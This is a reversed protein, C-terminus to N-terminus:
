LAWGISALVRPRVLANAYLNAPFQQDPISKNPTTYQVGAGLSLSVCDGVLAQYGVDAAGGLQLYSTESGDQAKATFSGLVFSPGLFFGRPGSLGSYWRYGLEAGFGKFRQEPLQRVPSGSADQVAIPETKSWAYFPSLVLAHHDIPVLVVNASARGITFLPLPNWEIALPRSPPKPDVVRVEVASPEAAQASRAAALIIFFTFVGRAKRRRRGLVLATALAIGGLAAAAGGGGVRSVACASENSTDCLAGGCALPAGSGADDGASPGTDRVGSDETAADGADGADGVDASAPRSLAALLVLASAFVFWARVLGIM